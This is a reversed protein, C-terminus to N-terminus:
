TTPAMRILYSIDVMAAFASVASLRDFRYDSRLPRAVRWMWRLCMRIWTIWIYSAGKSPM